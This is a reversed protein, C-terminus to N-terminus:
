KSAAKRANEQIRKTVNDVLNHNSEKAGLQLNPRPSVRPQGDPGVTGLEQYIGHEAGATLIRAGPDDTKEVRISKDLEHTDANSYGGPPGPIHGPGSVAGEKIKFQTYRKAFTGHRALVAGMGRERFAKLTM